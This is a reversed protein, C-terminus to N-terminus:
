MRGLSYEEIDRLLKQIGYNESLTIGNLSVHFSRDDIHKDIETKSIVEEGEHLKYLGTKLVKGGFQFGGEIEPEIIEGTVKIVIEKAELREIAEELETTDLGVDIKYAAEIEEIQKGIAGMQDPLLGYADIQLNILDLLRGLGEQERKNTTLIRKGAIETAIGTLIEQAEVDKDAIALAEAERIASDYPAIMRKMFGPMKKMAESYEIQADGQERLTSIYSKSTDWVSEILEDYKEWDDIRLVKASEEIADALKDQIESWKKTAIVTDEIIILGEKRSKNTREYGAKIEKLYGAENLDLLHEKGEFEDIVEKAANQRLTTEINKLNNIMATRTAEDKINTNIKKIIDPQKELFNNYANLDPLTGATVLGMNEAVDYMGSLGVKTYKSVDGQKEMAQNWDELRDANIQAQMAADRQAISVTGTAEAFGPFVRAMGYNLIDNGRKVNRGFKDFVSGADISRKTLRDMEDSYVDIISSGTKGEDSTGKLSHVFDIIAETAATTARKIGVLAPQLDEGLTRKAIDARNSLLQLQASTKTTAILFERELSTGWAIEKNATKLNELLEPYNEALTAIAFGGVKGFHEHAISVRDINSETEALKELYMILAKMPEDELAKRWEEGAEGMFKTIEDAKRAVETFARRLRTGAREGKMGASSLTATLAAAEHSTIGLMKGAAGINKMGAILEEVTSATTNELENLTSGLYEIREIPLDFAERIKALDGAAQDATLTTAVSMKAITETFALIDEKGKIGLRGATAAINALEDAAIPITLSLESIADGIDLMSKMSLDATKRLEYLADEFKIFPQYVWDAAQKLTRLAAGVLFIPGLTTLFIMGAKKIIGLTKSVGQKTKGWITGHKKLGENLALIANNQKMASASVEGGLKRTTEIQKVRAELQKRLGANVSKIGRASIDSAAKSQLAMVNASKAAKSFQKDTTKLALNAYKEASSFDRTKSIIRDTTGVMKKQSENVGMIRKEATKGYIGLREIELGATTYSKSVAQNIRQNKQLTSTFKGVTTDVKGYGSTMKGAAKTTATSTEGILTSYGQINKGARKQWYELGSYYKRSTTHVNKLDAGWKQIEGRTTLTGKRISGLSKDIVKRLKAFDSSAKEVGTTVIGIRFDEEAL